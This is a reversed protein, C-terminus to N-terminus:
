ISFYCCEEERALKMLKLYQLKKILDLFVYKLSTGTEAERAGGWRESNSLSLLIVLVTCLTDIRSLKAYGM